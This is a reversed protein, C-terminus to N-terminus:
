QNQARAHNGPPPLDADRRLVVIVCYEPILVKEITVISAYYNNDVQMWIVVLSWLLIM